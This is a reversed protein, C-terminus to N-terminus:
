GALGAPKASAGSGPRQRLRQNAPNLESPFAEPNVVPVLLTSIVLGMVIGLVLGTILYWHGRARNQM